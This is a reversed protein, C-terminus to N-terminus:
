AAFRAQPIDLAEFLFVRKNRWLAWGDPSLAHRRNIHHFSVIAGIHSADGIVTSWFSSYRGPFDTVAKYAAAQAQSAKAREELWDGIRRVFEGSFYSCDENYFEAEIYARIAAEEAAEVTEETSGFGIIFASM